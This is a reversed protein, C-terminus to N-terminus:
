NADLIRLTTVTHKGTKIHIRQSSVQKNFEQCYNYTEIEASAAGKFDIQLNGALFGFDDYKELTIQPSFHLNLNYPQRDAPIYDDLTILDQLLSFKRSCKKDFGTHVLSLRNDFEETISVKAKRGVRFSKWVDSANKGALSITNHADTSRQWNRADGEEYTHIGPDVIVPRSDINLCFSFEDSHAHGPQWAPQLAGANVFLEYREKRYMRFGSEKLPHHAAQINLSRAFVQLEPLSPAVGNTSDNVHPWEGNNFTVQELWGLM